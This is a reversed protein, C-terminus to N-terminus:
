PPHELLKAELWDPDDRWAHAARTALFHGRTHHAQSQARQHLDLFVLNEGGLFRRPSHHRAHAQKRQSAPERWPADHRSLKRPSWECAPSQGRLDGGRSELPVVHVRSQMRPRQETLVFEGGQFEEPETLLFAAQLPFALDGYLDQHLCNYNGPGYRLLLPTPRVQGASHSLEIFDSYEDPFPDGIALRQRWDNAVPLLRRYLGTRLAGILDPLPYAFYRYEGRGFGHRSMVVTSRFLDDREYSDILADCEARDLLPGTTAWGQDNLNRAVRDWEIADLRDEIQM